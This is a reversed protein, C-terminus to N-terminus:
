SMFLIWLGATRVCRRHMAKVVELILGNRLSNLSRFKLHVCAHKHCPRSAPPISRYVFGREKPDESHRQMVVEYSQEIDAFPIILDGEYLDDGDRQQHAHELIEKVLCTEAEYGGAALQVM